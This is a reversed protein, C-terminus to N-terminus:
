VSINLKFMDHKLKQMDAEYWGKVTENGYRRWIDGFEKMLTRLGYLYGFDPGPCESQYPCYPVDAQIESYPAAREREKHLPHDCVAPRVLTPRAPEDPDTVFTCHTFDIIRIDITSTPRSGPGSTTSAGNSGAHRKPGSASTSLSPRPGNSGSKGTMMGTPTRRSITSPSIVNLGDYVILLSSAYFRFGHISMVLRYLDILKRLLTPIHHVVIEEGNDLYELLSRKFTKDNLSRGYYKDQFLFRSKQTKYVQMGCMRVGLSKSTTMACKKIKNRRKAETADIGHQRTGMKLDLICPRRLGNTLDELLIFQHVNPDENPHKQPDANSKAEVFRRTCQRAWDEQPTSTATTSVSRGVRSGGVSSPARSGGFRPPTSPPSLGPTITLTEEMVFPDEGSGAASPMPSGSLSAAPPTLPLTVSKRDYLSSTPLVPSLGIAPGLASGNPFVPGRRRYALIAKPTELTLTQISEVRAGPGDTPTGLHKHSIPLSLRAPTTTSLTRFQRTLESEVPYAPSDSNDLASGPTTAANTPSGPVSDDSHLILSLENASIASTSFPQSSGYTPHADRVHQPLVRKGLLGGNMDTLSHRRRHRPGTTAQRKRRYLAYLAKPSFAEQLVQEQQARWEKTLTIEPQPYVSPSTRSAAWPLHEVLWPPLLHMNQEFVIEPKPDAADAPSTSSHPDDASNRSSTGGNFFTVNVIGLYSPLFRSLAPRIADVSEYFQREREVLPKCIAKDSFRLIPSHGGVQNRYPLLPVTPLAATLSRVVASQPPDETDWDWDDPDSPDSDSLHGPLAPPVHLTPVPSADTLRHHLSNSAGLSGVAFPTNHQHHHNHHHSVPAIMPIVIGHKPTFYDKPNRIGRSSGHSHAPTTPSPMPLPLTPSPDVFPRREGAGEPAEAALHNSVSRPLAPVSFLHTDSQM